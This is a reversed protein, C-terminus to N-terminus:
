PSATPAWRGPPRSPPWRRGTNGSYSACLVTTDPTTWGPLGYDRATVIPRSAHDGLAVRALDGGIASGGMGAVVLGARSDWDGLDASDVRWLADRLHEPLDLIDSLQNSTDVKGVAADNLDQATVTL